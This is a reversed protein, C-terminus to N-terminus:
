ESIVSSFDYSIHLLLIDTEDLFYESEFTHKHKVSITSPSITRKIRIDKYYKQQLNNIEGVNKDIHIEKVVFALMCNVGFHSPYLPKPNTFRKIGKEIYYRNLRKSGDIRKCEITFYKKRYKFMDISIVQLDTRGIPKNNQYNEPVESFFRFESLGVKEMVDDNNLYNHFLYDRIDEELNKIKIKGAICDRNMMECCNLVKSLIDKLISLSIARNTAIDIFGSM